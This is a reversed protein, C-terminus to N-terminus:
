ELKLTQYSTSLAKIHSGEPQPKEQKPIEKKPPEEQSVKTEPAKEPAKEPSKVELAKEPAKEPPKVEPAKKEEVKEKSASKGLDKKKPSTPEPVKEPQKEETLLKVQQPHKQIETEPKAAEEKVKQEIIKEEVQKKKSDDAKPKEEVKPKEEPKTVVEEKAKAESEIEDLVSRQKQIRQMLKDMEDDKEEIAKDDDTVSVISVARSMKKGFDSDGEIEEIVANHMSEKYASVVSEVFPASLSLSGVEEISFESTRSSKSTTFTGTADPSTAAEEVVIKTTRLKHM